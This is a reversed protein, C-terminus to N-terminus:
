KEAPTPMAKLLAKAHRQAAAEPGGLMRALEEVRLVPALATVLGGSGPILQPKKGTQDIKVPLRNSVIVINGKRENM